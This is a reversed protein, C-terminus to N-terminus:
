CGFVWLFNVTTDKFGRCWISHNPRNIDASRLGVSVAFGFDGDLKEILVETQCIWAGLSYFGDAVQRALRTLRLCHVSTSAVMTNLM